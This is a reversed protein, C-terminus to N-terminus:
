VKENREKMAKIYVEEVQPMNEGVFIDLKSLLPDAGMNAAVVFSDLARAVATPEVSEQEALKKALKENDRKLSLFILEALHESEFNPLNCSVFQTLAPDESKELLGKLIAHVDTEEEDRVVKLLEHIKSSSNEAVAQQLENRFNARTRHTQTGGVEHEGQKKEFPPATTMPNLAEKTERAHQHTYGKRPAQPRSTLDASSQAATTSPFM